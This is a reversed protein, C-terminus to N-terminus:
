SFDHGFPKVTQAACAPEPNATEVEEVLVYIVDSRFFSAFYRFHFHRDVILWWQSLLYVSRKACNAVINLM